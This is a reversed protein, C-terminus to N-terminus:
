LWELSFYVIRAWARWDAGIRAYGNWAFVKDNVRARVVGTWGMRQKVVGHWFDGVRAWGVGTRGLGQMVTGPLVGQGKGLSSRDM